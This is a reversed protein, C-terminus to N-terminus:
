VVSKRDTTRSRPKFIAEIADSAEKGPPLPSKVEFHYPGKKVWFASDLAGGPHAADPYECCGNHAEEMGAILKSRIQLENYLESWSDFRYEDKRNHMERFIELALPDNGCKRKLEEEFFPSTTVGTGGVKIKRQVQSGHGQQQALHALEHALLERGSGTDPSYNGAPMVIDTGVTYAEANVSRASEAALSDTYIRVHRLDLGFRPEMFKRTSADLPQGTSRLAEHVIPPAAIEGTDNSQVRKTQVREHVARENRCAACVGGEDCACKRQVQSESMNTVQEAVRDAEQEFTDGPANVALKAQLSVPAASPMLIRNVAHAPRTTTSTESDFESDEVSSQLLRQMAQNGIRRQLSLTQGIASREARSGKVNSSTRQQPQNEKRARTNM